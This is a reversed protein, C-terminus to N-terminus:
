WSWVVSISPLPKLNTWLPAQLPCARCRQWKTSNLLRLLMTASSSCSSVEALCISFQVATACGYTRRVRARGRPPNTNNQRTPPHRREMTSAFRRIKTAIALRCVSPGSSLGSTACWGREWNMACGHIPKWPRRTRVGYIQDSGLTAKRDWQILGTFHGGHRTRVTGHLPYEGGVHPAGRFLEISRVHRETLDVVGRSADWVRVGDAYDDAAYRNLLVVTGSKLTVWLDRGKAELRTIDGFRAMFPRGLDPGPGWGIEFGFLDLSVRDNPLERLLARDVWPNGRKVGNFYNGWLTEEDGGFRLRGEYVEGRDTTVRGYLFGNSVSATSAAVDPSTAVAGVDQEPGCAGLAATVALLTAFAGPTITAKTM